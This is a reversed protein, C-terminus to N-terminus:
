QPVKASWFFFPTLTHPWATPPLVSLIAFVGTTESNRWLSVDLEILIKAFNGVSNSFSVGFNTLTFQWSANLCIEIKFFLVFRRSM